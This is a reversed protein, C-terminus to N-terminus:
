REEGDPLVKKPRGPKRKPAQEQTEATKAKTTTKKTTTKKTTTKKKATTTKETEVKSRTRKPKDEKVVNNEKTRTKWKGELPISIYEDGVEVNRSLSEAVELHGRDNIRADIANIIPTSM